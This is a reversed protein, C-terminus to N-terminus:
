IVLHVFPDNALLGHMHKYLFLVLNQKCQYQLIESFDPKHFVESLQTMNPFNHKKSFVM